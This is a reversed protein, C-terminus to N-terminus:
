NIVKKITEYIDIRSYPDFTYSPNCVDYVYDLDSAIIPLNNIKAEILPLGLSENLSPFILYDSIDYIDFITNLSLNQIFLINKNHSSDRELKKPDVTLILKIRNPYDRFIKEFSSLLLKHNKHPDLSAPYFFM